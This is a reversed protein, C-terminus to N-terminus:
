KIIIVYPSEPHDSDPIMKACEAEATLAGVTEMARIFDHYCNEYGKCYEGEMAPHSFDFFGVRRFHSKIDDCHKLIIGRVMMQGILRIKGTPDPKGNPVDGSEPLDFQVEISIGSEGQFVALLYVDCGDPAYEDDICDLVVPLPDVEDGISVTEANPEGMKKNKTDNASHLRGRVLTSCGLSLEGDIVAGFPDSSSPTTWVDIVYIYQKLNKLIYDSNSYKWYQLFGDVSMWSWTPARWVPRKKRAKFYSFGWPLETVFRKRWMGALYQDRIVEHQRTSIGSLAPLRDSAYTLSTKSYEEVITSWNWAQNEPRVLQSDLNRPFGRPLFESLATTRCEWFLGQKGIYITRPALLKEQFSWARGALYTDSTAEEYIRQSHFNRLTCYDKTSVRACFGGNFYKPKLFCGEYVNTASSAAINVHAGGYVWRMHGAEHKWDSNDDQQQIICLADIWIYAIGLKRVIYIADTFTKPLDKQPISELFSTLNRPTLVAFPKSGWCYSLTAYQPMQDLTETLVLKVTNDTVWVLRTPRGQSKLTRCRDHMELCKRLWMRAIEFPDVHEDWLGATPSVFYAEFQCLGGGRSFCQKAVKGPLNVWLLQKNTTVTNAWDQISLSALASVDFMQLRSEIKRYTDLLQSVELRSVLFACFRCGARAAAELELTHLSRGVAHVWRSQTETQPWHELLHHCKACFGQAVATKSALQQVQRQIHDYDLKDSEAAMVVDSKDDLDNDDAALYKEYWSRLSDPSQYGGQQTRDEM